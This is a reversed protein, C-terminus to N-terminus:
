TLTVTGVDSLDVALFVPSALAPHRATLLAAQRWRQGGGEELDVVVEGRSGRVTGMGTAGDCGQSGLRERGHVDAWGPGPREM